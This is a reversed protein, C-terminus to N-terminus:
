SWCLGKFDCPFRGASATGLRRGGLGETLTAGRKRDEIRFMRHSIRRAKEFLLSQQKLKIKCSLTVM